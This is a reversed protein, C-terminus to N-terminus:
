KLIRRVGDFRNLTCGGHLFSGGFGLFWNLLTSIVAIRFIFLFHLSGIRLGGDLLFRRFRFLGFSGFALRFGFVLFRILLRWGGFRFVFFGLRFILLLLFRLRQSGLLRRAFRRDVMMVLFVVFVFFLMVVFAVLVLLRFLLARHFSGLLIGFLIVLFNLSRDFAFSFVHLLLGFVLPYVLFLHFCYYVFVLVEPLLFHPMGKCLKLAPHLLRLFLEFSVHFLLLLIVLFQHWLCFVRELRGELAFLFFIIRQLFNMILLNLINKFILPGESEDLIHPM